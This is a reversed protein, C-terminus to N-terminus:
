DALRTPDCLLSSSSTTSCPPRSADQTTAPAPRADDDLEVALGHVERELLVRRADDATPRVDRDATRPKSAARSPAPAPSDAREPPSALLMTVAVATVAGVSGATVLALISRLTSM